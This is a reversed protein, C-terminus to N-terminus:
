FKIRIGNTFSYLMNYQTPIGSASNMWLTPAFEFFLHAHKFLNDKKSLKLEVGLPVILNVDFWTKGRITEMNSYIYNPELFYGSTPHGFDIEYGEYQHVTLTSNISAGLGIGIGMYFSWRKEPNSHWLVAANLRIRNSNASFTRGGYRISDVATATTNGQFTTYLSDYPYRNSNFFVLNSTNNWTHSLGVRFTPRGWTQEGAKNFLNFELALNVASIINGYYYSPTNYGEMDLSPFDNNLALNQFDTLPRFSQEGYLLSSSLEVSNIKMRRLKTYSESQALSAFSLALCVSLLIIRM